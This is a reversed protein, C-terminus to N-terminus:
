STTQFVLDAADDETLDAMSAAKYVPPVAGRFTRTRNSYRGALIARRFEQPTRFDQETEVWFKNLYNLGYANSAYLPNITHREAYARAADVRDSQYHSCSFVEIADALNYIAPLDQGDVFDPNSIVTMYGDACARALLESQTRLSEYDPDAAGLVLVDPGDDFTVEIAPFLQVRECLESLGALDRTSWVRNREALFIADYGSAEAMLILEVPPISSANTYPETHTHVDVKM